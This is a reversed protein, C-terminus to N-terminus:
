LNFHTLLHVIKGNEVPETEAFSGDAALYAEVERHYLRIM